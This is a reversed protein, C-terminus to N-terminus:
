KKENLKGKKVTSKKSKANKKNTSKSGNKNTKKEIEKEKSDVSSVLEIAEKIDSVDSTNEVKNDVIKSDGIPNAVMNEQLQKQKKNKNQVVILTVLGIIVLTLVIIIPLGISLFYFWDNKEILFADDTLFFYQIEIPSMSKSVIKVFHKQDSLGTTIFLPTNSIRKNSHTKVTQIKKNDVYVDFSGYHKDKVGMIAFANGVFGFETKNFPFITFLSTNNIKADLNGNRWDGYTNILHSNAPLIKSPKFSTKLEMEKMRIWRDNGKKQFTIKLNDLSQGKFFYTSNWSTKVFPEELLTRYGNKDKTEIKIGDPTFKQMDNGSSYFTASEIFQKQFKVDLVVDYIDGKLQFPKDHDYNGDYIKDEKENPAYYKHLNDKNELVVSDIKGLIEPQYFFQKYNYNTLIEFPIKNGELVIKSKFNVRISENEKSLLDKRKTTTKKSVVVSFEIEDVENIKKTNPIYKYKWNQEDEVDLTGFKPENIIKFDKIDYVDERTTDTSNKNKQLTKIGEKFNFTFGNFFKKEILMPHNVKTFEANRSDDDVDYKIDTAYDSFVPMLPKFKEENLELDKQTKAERKKLFDNIKKASDENILQADLAFQSWNYGTIESLRKVIVANQNLEEAPVVNDKLVSRPPDMLNNFSNLIDNRSFSRIFDQMKDTGFLAFILSYDQDRGNREADKSAMQENALNNVVNIANWGNVKSVHDSRHANRNSGVNLYKIYSILNLVNNSVEGYGKYAWKGKQQHQHNIEHFHGWLGNEVIYDFDLIRESWDWPAVVFFQRVFSVALGAPVFLSMNIHISPFRKDEDAISYLADLAMKDMLDIAKFPYFKPNLPNPKPEKPFVNFNTLKHKPGIFKLHDSSIDFVPAKAEKVLRFWEKETTYGHVYHLAEIAGDISLAVNKLGHVGPDRANNSIHIIGGFPTGFKFVAKDIMITKKFRPLRKDWGTRGITTEVENEALVIELKLDQVEKDSLDKFRVTFIEGPPIYLGTTIQRKQTLDLNFIKNVAMATAPVKNKKGYQYDSAPFKGMTKDNIMKILNENKLLENSVNIYKQVLEKREDEPKSLFHKNEFYPYEDDNKSLSNPLKLRKAPIRPYKKVVKADHSYMTTFDNKREINKIKEMDYFYATQTFFITTSFILAAFCGAMVLSLVKWKSFFSKSKKTFDNMKIKKFFTDLKM